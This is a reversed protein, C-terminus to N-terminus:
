LCEKIYISTVDGEEDGDLLNTIAALVHSLVRPVPDDLRKLLASM